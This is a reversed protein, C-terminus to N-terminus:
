LKQLHIHGLRSHWLEMSISEVHHVAAVGEVGRFFYLGNLQEGAEILMRTIRDQVVCLRDSIQCICGRDRTLQSVSILHCHLGDVFFVNHLQLSSGM